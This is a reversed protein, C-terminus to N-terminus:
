ARVDDFWVPPLMRFTVSDGQTGSATFKYRVLEELGPTLSDSKWTASSRGVTTRTINQPTAGNDANVGDGTDEGNKTFVEVKLSHSDGSVAVLDLTAKFNDGQRPFWPSFVSTDEAGVILIQAEFM